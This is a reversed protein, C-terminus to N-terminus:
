RSFFIWLLLNKFVYMLIRNLFFLRNISLFMKQYLNETISIDMQLNILVDFYAWFVGNQYLNRMIKRPFGESSPISISNLVVKM